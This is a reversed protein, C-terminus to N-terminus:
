VGLVRGGLHVRVDHHGAVAPQDLHLGRGLAGRERARRQVLQERQTLRADLPQALRLLRREARGHDSRPRTSSTSAVRLACLSLSNSGSSAGYRITGSGASTSSGGSVPVVNAALASVFARVAARAVPFAATASSEPM